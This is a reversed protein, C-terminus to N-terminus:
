ITGREDRDRRVRTQREGEKVREKEERRKKELVRDRKREENAECSYTVREREKKSM